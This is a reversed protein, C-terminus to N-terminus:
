GAPRRRPRWGPTEAPDAPHPAMQPVSPSPEVPNPAEGDTVAPAEDSPVPELPAAPGEASVTPLSGSDDIGGADRDPVLVSTQQLTDADDEVIQPVPDAVVPSAGPPGDDQVLPPWPKPAASLPHIGGSRARFDNQPPSGDPVPGAYDFPDPCITCGGCACAATLVLVAWVANRPAVRDSSMAAGM